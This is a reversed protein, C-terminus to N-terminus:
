FDFSAGLVAIPSWLDTKKPASVGVLAQLMFQPTVLWSAAPGLTLDFDRAGPTATSPAESDGVEQQFRGDIGARLGTEGFRYGAFSKLELDKGGGQTEVGFVGNLLLDFNGFSRGAALLLEVEGHNPNFGITKARVGVAMDIGAGTQSLFQYRLRASPGGGTGNQWYAGVDGALHEIPAWMVNGSLTSGGENSQFTSGGIGAIRVSGAQPTAPAETLLTDRDLGQAGATAAASALCFTLIFTVRGGTLDKLSRTRIAFARM